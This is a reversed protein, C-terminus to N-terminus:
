GTRLLRFAVTLEVVLVEAESVLEFDVELVVVLVEVPEFALVVPEAVALLVVVEIAGAAVAPSEPVIEVIMSVM